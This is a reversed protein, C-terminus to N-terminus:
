LIFDRYIKIIGQITIDNEITAKKYLHKKFLYSYGGTLVIKFNKRNKKIIKKVINNILGQYGWFFGSALAEKTNKGYTMPYRNLKVLPLLAASSHLNEISLKIGPAIIGGDYVFNNKVVDFTTATGFDIIICNTKFKQYGGIANAIRDSGLQSYKKVRFSMIKKLNFNKIEHVKLKKTKFIKNVSKFVNPVVSSFLVNKNTNKKVIKRLNKKLNNELKISKTKFFYTKIIKFSSNIKCIKINTNGIDGILYNM